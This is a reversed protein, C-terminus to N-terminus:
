RTEVGIYGARGSCEEPPIITMIDLTDKYMVFM